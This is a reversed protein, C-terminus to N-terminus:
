FLNLQLSLSMVKENEDSVLIDDKWLNMGRGEQETKSKPKYLPPLNMSAKTLQFAAEDPEEYEAAEKFCISLAEAPDFNTELALLAPDDEIGVEKDLRSAQAILSIAYDERLNFMCEIDYLFVYDKGDIVVGPIMPVAYNSSEIDFDKIPEAARLTESRLQILDLAAVEVGEDQLNIDEEQELTDGRQPFDEEKSEESPGEEESCQGFEEFSGEKFDFYLLFALAEELLRCKRIHEKCTCKFDEPLNDFRRNVHHKLRDDRVIQNIHVFTRGGEEVRGAETLEQFAALHDSLSDKHQELISSMNIERNFMNHYIHFDSQAKCRHLFEFMLM